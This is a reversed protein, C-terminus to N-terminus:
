EGNSDDDSEVKTAKDFHKSLRVYGYSAGLLILGLIILVIIKQVLGFDSIDHFIVKILAIVFLVISLKNLIKIQNKMAVFLLVIAHLTLLISTMPGELNIGFMFLIFLYIIVYQIQNLLISVSWSNGKAVFWDKKNKLIISFIIVNVSSILLPIPFQFIVLSLLALLNIVGAIKFMLNKSDFVPGIKDYFYVMGFLLLAGVSLSLSINEYDFSFIFTGILIVLVFPLLKIYSKFVSTQLQTYAIAKELAVILIIFVIGSLIGLSDLETYGILFSALTLVYFEIKLASYKLNKFLFYTILTGLWFGIEIFPLYHKRILNIFLLPILAFFAVRLSKSIAFTTENEMKVKQYFLKLGWFVAMLEVLILQAYLKQDSFHVSGTKVISLLLGFLIVFLHLLGLIDTLKTEFQKKWYIFGFLPIISLNFIWDGVLHYGVMFYVTALWVPVIEQIFNNLSIEFDVFQEKYKRGVIWIAMFIIGLAFYNVLGIHWLGYGWLDVIMLSSMALKACSIALLLYGEKRVLPFSFQFGLGILLVAEISWFLGMLDQDFISPIAFAILMSLISFLVIKISKDLEKWQLALIILFALANAGYIVGLLVLSDNYLTYLNYLFFSLNGSLIIIDVKELNTKLKLGDFLSLFFFTYAFLHFYIAYTTISPSHKFVM